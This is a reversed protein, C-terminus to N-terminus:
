WEVLVAGSTMGGGFGVLIVKQGRKLKGSQNLEDLAIGISASSTNGYKNLNVYFKDLPTKLSKAASEIIRINAQHPIVWAVDDMKIKEQKLVKVVASVMAKVAFKFVEGGQMEITGMRNHIEDAFIGAENVPIASCELLEGRSGDAALTYQLIHGEDVKARELYVAGAGDGFLVCTNRDKWDVIKSLTEAGIVLANRYMGTQIFQSAMTMGYILGTCAANVDMAAAKKAKLLSQVICATAPTFADPTVTSVIILDLDVADTGANELAKMGAKYALRSTPEMTSIHRKEIGTRTRIWEDSTDVVKTLDQNTVINEPLYSGTGKICVNNL